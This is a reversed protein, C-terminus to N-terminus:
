QAYPKNKVSAKWQLVEFRTCVCMAPSHTSPNFAVMFRCKSLPSKSFTRYSWLNIESIYQKTIRLKPEKSHFKANFASDMFKQEGKQRKLFCHHDCRWPLYKLGQFSNCQQSILLGVPLHPPNQQLVFSNCCFGWLTGHDLSQM